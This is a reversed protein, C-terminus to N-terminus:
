GNHGALVRFGVVNSRGGLRYAGRSSCRVARIPNDYSGGAIAARQGDALVTATWEWVNGAMDWCGSPSLNHQFQGPLTPYGSRLEGANHARKWDDWTPLMRGAWHDACNASDIEAEDGWPFLRGDTGRAAIEWQTSSPLDTGAWRAYAWAAWWNLCTAPFDVYQDAVYYDPLRLKTYRVDTGAAPPQADHVQVEGLEVARLFGRFEGVTVPTTRISFSESLVHVRVEGPPGIVYNGPACVGDGKAAPSKIGAETLFARCQDTIKLGDLQPAPDRVSSLYEAGLAERFVQHRFRLRDRDLPVLIRHLLCTESSPGGRFISQGLDRLLDLVAISRDASLCMPGLVSVLRDVDLQADGSARQVEEMATQFLSTTAPGSRLTQLLPSEGGGAMGIIRLVSFQPLSLPDVGKSSLRGALKESVLAREDLLQRVYPTDLLFSKRCALITTSSASLLVSLDGFLEVIDDISGGSVGEDIADVLCLCRGSRILYAFVPWVHSRNVYFCEGLQRVVLEEIAEGDRRDALDLFFRYRGKSVSTFALQTLLHTKGTGAAGILLLNIAPRDCFTSIAAEVDRVHRTEFSLQTPDLSLLAGEAEGFDRDLSAISSARNAAIRALAKSDVVTDLFAQYPMVRSDPLSAEGDESDDVLVFRTLKPYTTNLLSGGTAEILASLESVRTSILIEVYESRLGQLREYLVYSSSQSLDFRKSLVFGQTSYLGGVFQLREVLQETLTIAQGALESSQSTEFWELITVFRHLVLHADETVVEYGDHASRNRMTRVDALADLVVSSDIHDRTGKILDNLSRSSPDGPVEHQAWLAKLVRETAKGILSVANEPYGDEVSKLPRDIDLGLISTVQQRARLEARLTELRDPDM